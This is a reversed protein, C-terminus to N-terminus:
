LCAVAYWIGLITFLCPLRLYNLPWRLRKSIKPFFFSLLLLFKQFFFWLGCQYGQLCIALLVDCENELVCPSVVWFNYNDFRVSFCAFKNAIVLGLFHCGCLLLWYCNLGWGFLSFPCFPFLRSVATFRIHILFWFACFLLIVLQTDEM